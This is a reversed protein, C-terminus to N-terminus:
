NTEADTVQAGLIRAQLDGLESTPGSYAVEGKVMVMTEDALGLQQGDVPKNFVIALGSLGSPDLRSCGVSLLVALVVLRVCVGKMFSECLTSRM